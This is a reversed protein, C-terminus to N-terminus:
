LDIIEFDDKKEQPKAEETPKAQEVPKNPAFGLDRLTPDDDPAHNKLKELGLLDIKAAKYPEVQEMMQVNSKFISDINEKKEKPAKEIERQIEEDTMLNISEGKIRDMAKFYEEDSLKYPKNSISLLAYFMLPFVVLGIKYGLSTNFVIGLKYSMMLLVIINLVPVFLLIGWFTNIDCIELMTFLNIIPYFASKENKSAKKFINKGTIMILLSRFLTFGWIVSVVAIIANTSKM